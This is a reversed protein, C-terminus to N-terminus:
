VRLNTCRFGGCRSREEDCAGGGAEARTRGTLEVQKAHLATLAETRSLAEKLSRSPPSQPSLHSHRAKEGFVNMEDDNRLMRTTRVM